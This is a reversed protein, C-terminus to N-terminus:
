SIPTRSQAPACLGESAAAIGDRVEQFARRERSSANYVMFTIPIQLYLNTETQYRQYAAESLQFSRGIEVAAPGFGWNTPWEHGVRCSLTRNPLPECCLQVTGPQRRAIAAQPHHLQFDRGTPRADYEIDRFRVPGVPPEGQAFAIGGIVLAAALILLLRM